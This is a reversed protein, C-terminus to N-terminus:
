QLEQVLKQVGEMIKKFKELEIPVDVQDPVPKQEIGASAAPKQDTNAAGGSSSTNSDQTNKPRFGSRVFTEDMSQAMGRFMEKFGDPVSKEAKRLSQTIEEAEQRVEPTSPSRQDRFGLDKMIRNSNRLIEAIDHSVDSHHSAFILCTFFM